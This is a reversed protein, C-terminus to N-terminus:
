DKKIDLQEGGTIRELEQPSLPFFAHDTGAAAWVTEYMFLDEDLLAKLNEPYGVPPVGGVKFGSFKFVFDPDAMKVKRVGLFRRIKKINVRNTGSLLALIPEEDAILVLSKLIHEPPAGVARSADEVTFITDSTTLIEGQYGNKELFIRVKEIPDPETSPFTLEYVEVLYLCALLLDM